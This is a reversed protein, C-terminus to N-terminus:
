GFDWSGNESAKVVVTTRKKHSNFSIGFVCPDASPNSSCSPVPTPNGDHFVKTIKRLKCSNGSRGRDDDDRAGGGGGGSCVPPLAANDILFTFTARSSFHFPTGGCAAGPAPLCIDSVQTIGPDSSTRDRESLVAAIGTIPTTPLNPACVSTALPNGSGLSQNTAITPTSPNSCATTAFGAAKSPDGVALLSVAVPSMQLKTTSSSSRDDDDDDDDDDKKFTWFASNTLCPATGPPTAVACNSSSGSAPTRWTITVTAVENKRLKSIPPCAFETATLAGGACSASPSTAPGGSTTPITNHFQVHELTTRSTNKISATFAVTQGYTVAGLGPVVVLTVVPSAGGAPAPASTLGAVVVSVLTALAAVAALLARKHVKM